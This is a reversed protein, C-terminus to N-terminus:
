AAFSTDSTITLLGHWRSGVLCELRHESLYPPARAARAMGVVQNAVILQTVKRAARELLALVRSVHEGPIQGREALRALVVTYFEKSFAGPFQRPVTPSAQRIRPVDLM